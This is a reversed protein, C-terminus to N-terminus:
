QGRRFIVVTLDDPHGGVGEVPSAMRETCDVLLRQACQVLPGRRVREVIEDVILNDSLGDSAVVVTDYPALKRTTGMEVRMDPCGVVNSVIHRDDATMAEAEDLLGAELAYGVPSHSMTQLKLKRRQGTVLVFSDGVHYPRIMNEDIEVVAVTTASGSGLELIRHNADDLGRLVANRLNGDGSGTADAADRLSEIAIRSARDGDPHGGLGDAVVILGRNEGAPILAASDENVTQKAPSRISFLAASGGAIAGSRPELMSEASILVTQTRVQDSSFPQPKNVDM